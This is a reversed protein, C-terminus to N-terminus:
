GHKDLHTWSALRLREYLIASAREKWERTEEGPTVDTFCGVEFVMRRRSFDCATAIIQMQM